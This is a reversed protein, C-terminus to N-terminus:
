IKESFGPFDYSLGKTEEKKILNLAM